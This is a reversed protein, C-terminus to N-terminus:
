DAESVATVVLRDMPSDGGDYPYFTALFVQGIDALILDSCDEDPSLVLSIVIGDKTQRCACKKVEHKM